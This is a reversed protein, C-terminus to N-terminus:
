MAINVQSKLYEAQQALKTLLKRYESPKNSLYKFHTSIEPNSYGLLKIADDDWTKTTGKSFNIINNLGKLIQKKSMTKGLNETNSALNQLVMTNNAIIENPNFYYKRMGSKTFKEAKDTFGFQNLLKSTDWDKIGDMAKTKYLDIFKPSKVISPDKIHAFEHTLINELHTPTFQKVNDKVVYVSNNVADAFMNSEAHAPLHKLVYDKPVTFVRIVRPGDKTELKVTQSASNFLNKTIGRIQGIESKNFKIGFKTVFNALKPAAKQGSKLTQIFYQQDSTGSIYERLLNDYSEQGYRQIYSPKFSKIEKIIPSIKNSANTLGQKILSENQEISNLVKIEAPSFTKIGKSLKSALLSMGKSGLEKVGPIKGIFPIMAFAATLGASENDGEKYYLSADALSIAASIFPGAVPIFATGISLVTMLTHNSLGKNWGKVADDAQKPTLGQSWGVMSQELLFNHQSETIIIKM